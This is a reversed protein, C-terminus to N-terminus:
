FSEGVWFPTKSEISVMGAQVTEWALGKQVLGKLELNSISNHRINLKSGEPMWKQFKASPVSSWKQNECLVSIQLQSNYGELQEFIESTPAAILNVASNKSQLLFQLGQNVVKGAECSLIQLPAQNNLREEQDDLVGPRQLVVDIKIGWQLVNELVRDTVMVLPVWELLPEVLGFSFTELIFLAPEQAEKVFHHSSM